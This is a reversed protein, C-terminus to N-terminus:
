TFLRSAKQGAPAEGRIEDVPHEAALRFLSAPGMQRASETEGPESLLGPFRQFGRRAGTYQRAKKM